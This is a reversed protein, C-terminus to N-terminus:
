ISYKTDSKMEKALGVVKPMIMNLQKLYEQFKNMDEQLNREKNKEYEIHMFDALGWNIIEKESIDASKALMLRLNNDGDFCVSEVVLRDKKLEDPEDYTTLVRYGEGYIMEAAKNLNAGFQSTVYAARFPDNLGAFIIRNEEDISIMKLGELWYKYQHQKMSSEMVKLTQEWKQERNKM